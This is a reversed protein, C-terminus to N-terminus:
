RLGSAQALEQTLNWMGAFRMTDTVNPIKYFDELAPPYSEAKTYELASGITNQGTKSDYQWMGIWSAYPDKHINDIFNHAASIQQPTTSNDYAVVGGWLQDHPLTKLDYKTVIGFNITGGKLAKYLEPHQANNANVIDGNAM